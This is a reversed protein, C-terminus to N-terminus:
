YMCGCGLIHNQWVPLGIRIISKGFTEPNLYGGERINNQGVPSGNRAVNDRYNVIMECFLVIVDWSLIFCNCKVFIGIM